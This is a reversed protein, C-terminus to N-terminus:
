AEPVLIKRARRGRNVLRLVGMGCGRMSAKEGSEIELTKVSRLIAARGGLSILKDSHEYVNIGNHLLWFFGKHVTSHLPETGNVVRQIYVAKKCADENINWCSILCTPFDLGNMSKGDETVALGQTALWESIQTEPNEGASVKAKFKAVAPVNTRRVNLSIFAIAEHEPGDSKFLMCPVERIDGRRRAALLRQQGDVVYKEGNAREMVVISNFAVWNFKSAIALTNKTSVEPRQYAYDINLVDVEVKCQRGKDGPKVWGYQDAKNMKNKASMKTQNEKM